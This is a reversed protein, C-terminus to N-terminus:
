KFKRHDYTGLFVTGNVIWADNLNPKGDMDTCVIFDGSGSLISTNAKMRIGSKTIIEASTFYPVKTAWYYKKGVRATGRFWKGKQMHNFARDIEQGLKDSKITIIYDNKLKNLTTVYLEGQTGQMVVCEHKDVIYKVDYLKNYIVEGPCGIRWKIYHAKKKVRKFNNLFEM